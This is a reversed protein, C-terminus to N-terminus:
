SRWWGNFSSMRWFPRARPMRDMFFLTVRDAVPSGAAFLLSFIFELVVWVVLLPIVTFIGAILNSRITPSTMKLDNV